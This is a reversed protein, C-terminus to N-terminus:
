VIDCVARDEKGLQWQFPPNEHLVLFAVSSCLIAHAASASRGSHCLPSRQPSCVQDGLPCDDNYDKWREHPSQYMTFTRLTGGKCHICVIVALSEHSKREKEFKVLKFCPNFEPSRPIAELNM